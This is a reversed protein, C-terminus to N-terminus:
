NEIKRLYKYDLAWKIFEATNIKNSRFRERLLHNEVRQFFILSLQKDQLSKIENLNTKYLSPEIMESLKPSIGLLILLCENFSLQESETLFEHWVERTKLQKHNPNSAKFDLINDSLLTELSSVDSQIEAKAHGDGLLSNRLRKVEVTINEATRQHFLNYSLEPM